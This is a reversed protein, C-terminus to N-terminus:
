AQMWEKLRWLIFRCYNLPLMWARPDGYLTRVTHPSPLISKQFSYWVTSARDLALRMMFKNVLPHHKRVTLLDLRYYRCLMGPESIGMDRFAGELGIVSKLGRCSDGWLARLQSLSIWAAKVLGTERLRRGSQQWDLANDHIHFIWLLDVLSRLEGFDHMHHHILMQIIQMEPSLVTRDSGDKETKEWVEDSTLWFFSPIGFSWHVEVAHGGEAHLYLAHHSREQWYELPSKDARTYGAEAMIRDAERIDRVRILIDIDSSTRSNPDGYIRRATDSGKIICADTGHTRFLSLLRTEEAEQRASHAMNKLAFQRLGELFEAADAPLRGKQKVMRSYLLMAVNHCIGLDWAEALTDRGATSLDPAPDPQLLRLFLDVEPRQNQMPRDAQM